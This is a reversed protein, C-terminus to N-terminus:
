RLICLDENVLITGNRKGAKVKPDYRENADLIKQVPVNHQRSIDWLTEKAAVRHIFGSCRGRHSAGGSKRTTGSSMNQLWSPIKLGLFVSGLIPIIPLRGGRKKRRYTQPKTTQRRQVDPSAEEVKIAEQKPELKTQVDSTTEEVKVAEPKPELTPQVDSTGKVPNKKLEPQEPADSTREGVKVSKKKPEPQKPKDSARGVKVPIKKPEPKTQVDSTTGGVKVPIKKPEPKTQVDSTTGGVKVPIKKPEPKTQVDSTTGGVKVPIKKPEPKTQVDSTTEEAKSGNTLSDLRKQLGPQIEMKTISRRGTEASKPTYELSIVMSGTVRDDSESEKQPHLDTKLNYVTCPKKEEIFQDLTEQAVGLARETAADFLTIEVMNGTSRESAVALTYNEEWVPNATGEVAFTKTEAKSGSGAIKIKCYISNGDGAPTLGEARHVIVKLRGWLTNVLSSRRAPAGWLGYASQPLPAM